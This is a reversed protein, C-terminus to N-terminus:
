DIKCMYTQGAQRSAFTVCDCSLYILCKTRGLARMRASSRELHLPENSRKVIFDSCFLWRPTVENPFFFFAGLEAKSPFGFLSSSLLSNHNTAVVLRDNDGRKDSTDISMFTARILSRSQQRESFLKSGKKWSIDTTQLQSQEGFLRFQLAFVHSIRWYSKFDVFTPIPKSQIFFESCEHSRYRSFNPVITRGVCCGLWRVFIGDRSASSDSNIFSLVSPLLFPLFLM